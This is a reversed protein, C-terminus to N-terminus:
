LDLLLANLHRFLHVNVVMGTHERITQKVQRGLAEKAKPKETRGPFLWGHDRAGVLRPRYRGIYRDLAQALVPPIPKDLVRHSKVEHREFLFRLPQRKGSGARVINREIHCGGLNRLRIGTFILILIAVAMQVLLAGDRDVEPRERALSLLKDPLDLLRAIHAPDDFQALRLRNTPTLGSQRCELKKLAQGLRKLESEDVLELRRATGLLTSRHRLPVWGERAM